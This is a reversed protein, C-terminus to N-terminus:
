DVTFRRSLRERDKDSLPQLEQWVALTKKVNLYKMRQVYISYVYLKFITTYICGKTSNLIVKRLSVGQSALAREGGLALVPRIATKSADIGTASRLLM